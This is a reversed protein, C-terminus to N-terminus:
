RGTRGQSGYHGEARLCEPCGWLPTTRVPGEGLDHMLFDSLPMYARGEHEFTETVHCSACGRAEFRAIATPPTPAPDPSLALFADLVADMAATDSLDIGHAASAIRAFDELRGAALKSGYLGITPGAAGSVHRIAGAIGDGDLDFADEFLFPWEPPLGEMAALGVIDFAGDVGVHCALCQGVAPHARDTATFLAPEDRGVSVDDSSGVAGLRGQETVRAKRVPATTGPVVTSGLVIALALGTVTLPRRACARVSAQRTADVCAIM